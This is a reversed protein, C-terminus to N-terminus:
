NPTKLLRDKGKEEMPVTEVMDVGFRGIRWHQWFDLRVVGECLGDRSHGM